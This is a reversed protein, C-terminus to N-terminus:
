SKIPLKILFAAGASSNESLVLQGGAAQVLQRSLYLGVGMGHTGKTSFNPEFINRVLNPSVGEGSDVVKIQLMPGSIETQIKINRTRNSPLEAMAEAANRILNVLVIVLPRSKAAIKPLNQPISVSVKINRKELLDREFHVAQKIAEEPNAEVLDTSAPLSLERIAEITYGADVSQSIIFKLREELSSVADEWHIEKNKIRQLDMLALEAPLTIKSLPRKMEHAFGGAAEQLLAPDLRERPFQRDIWRHLRMRLPNFMLTIVIAAAASSIASAPGHHDGLMQVVITLIGVYASALLASIVSYLFTKRIIVNFDLLHHKYIAYSTTVIYIPVIYAGYPFIPINLLPFLTTLGGCFGIATGWFVYKLQNQYQGKAEHLQARLFWMSYFVFGIFYAVYVWFFALPFDYFRFPPTPRVGALKGGFNLMQLIFAITYGTKLITPRNQGCITLVFHFFVVPLCIAGGYLFCRLWFLAEKESEASVVKGQGVCYIAISLCTLGWLLRIPSKYGKALIIAAFLGSLVGSIVCAYVFPTM